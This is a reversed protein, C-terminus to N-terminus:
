QGTETNPQQLSIAEKIYSTVDDAIYSPRFKRYGPFKPHNAIGIMRPIDTLIFDRLILRPTSLPLKLGKKRNEPGTLTAM